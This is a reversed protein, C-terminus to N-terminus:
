PTTLAIILGDSRIVQPDLRFIYPDGSIRARVYTQDLSVLGSRGKPTCSLM